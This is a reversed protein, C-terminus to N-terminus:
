ININRDIQQNLSILTETRSVGKISQINNNLLKMLHENDKCLIKILISWNGTTYHCELIEPIKKLEDVAEPNRIAKDLFVGIFALTKYGLLKSNLKVSSGIILRKSELKRIRQHIAPGSIKIKRAIKQIPTRSDLLLERIISKDIGDLYLLHIKNEEM